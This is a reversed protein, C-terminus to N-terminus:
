DPSLLRPHLAASSGSATDPASGTGGPMNPALRAPSPRARAGPSLPHGRTGAAMGMDRHSDQHGRPQGRAGTATGTDGCGDGHGWPQGRTGTGGGAPLGAVDGAVPQTQLPTGATAPPPCPTSANWSGAFEAGTLPCCGGRQRYCKLLTFRLSNANLKNSARCIRCVENLCM